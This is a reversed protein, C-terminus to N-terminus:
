SVESESNSLRFRKATVPNFQARATDLEKYLADFIEDVQEPTYDYFAKNTCNGLLRITDIIRNARSTMIRVFREKKTENVPATKSKAM